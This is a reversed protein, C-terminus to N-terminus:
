ESRLSKIPNTVAAKITQYSITLLTIALAGAGSLVFVWASIHTRYEYKQLWQSLIYGALPGAIFCSILVLIIFEKTQLKWLSFISAGLVKRVGIEKTRQEAVFSALGSLGLCSIFVALIAFLTALNGVHEEASFKRSYMEDTFQYKFPRGPSYYKFIPEIRTLAERIPVNPKIRVTVVHIRKNSMLMFFTPQAPMYPSEMVMDKIVGVILHNEHHWSIVEGVPQKFGLFRAASENLIIAGSDSAFDRSFDRGEKMEWGLTKGFDYTVFLTGIIPVSHPDRGRWDYGLMSNEVATSPSSSEAMDAVVGTSLLDNRMADYHGQIEDATQNVTILGERTYGVPRNRAYQIQQLVIVTGIILTVSVTFQVVVLIKRPM